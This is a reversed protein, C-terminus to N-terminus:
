IKIKRFLHKKEKREKKNKKEPVDNKEPPDSKESEERCTPEEYESGSNFSRDPTYNGTQIIFDESSRRPSNKKLEYMERQLKALEYRLNIVEVTLQENNMTNM